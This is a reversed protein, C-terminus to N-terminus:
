CPFQFLDNDLKGGYIHFLPHQETRLFAHFRNFFLWSARVHAVIINIFITCFKPWVQSMFSEGEAVYFCM